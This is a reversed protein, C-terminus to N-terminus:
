ETTCKVIGPCLSMEDARKEVSLTDFTYRVTHDKERWFPGYRQGAMGFEQGIVGWVM